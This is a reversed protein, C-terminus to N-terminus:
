GAVAQEARWRRSLGDSPQETHRGDGDVGDRVVDVAAVVDM